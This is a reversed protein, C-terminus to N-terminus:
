GQKYRHPQLLHLTKKVRLTILKFKNSIRHDQRIKLLKSLEDQRIGLSYKLRAM